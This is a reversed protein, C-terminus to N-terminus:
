GAEIRANIWYAATRLKWASTNSDTVHPYAGRKSFGIKLFQGDETEIFYVFGVSSQRSEQCAGGEQSEADGITEDTRGDHGKRHEGPAAEADNEAMSPSGDRPSDNGEGEHGSLVMRETASWKSFFEVMRM